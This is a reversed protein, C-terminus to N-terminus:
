APQAVAAAAQLWLADIEALRAPDFKRGAEWYRGSPVVYGLRAERALTAACAAPDFQDPRCDALDRVNAQPFVLRAPPPSLTVCACGQRAALVMLRASKAELSQLTPDPRLPDPHGAGYFHTRGKAPYHMNCGMFALVRPRYHHLAWYGATFAMTAGAYVVGGYANQAPIFEDETVIRQFPAPGPPMRASPFDYPHILADWDPRLAWANNIAVIDDFRGRPLSSAAVADPGSGLILITTM